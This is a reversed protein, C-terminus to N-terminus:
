SKQLSLNPENKQLLIKRQLLFHDHLYLIQDIEELYGKSAIIDTEWTNVLNVNKNTSSECINEVLDKWHPSIEGHKMIPITSFKDDPVVIYQSSVQLTKPNLVLAVSGVHCFSDGLYVGIRAKPEWKLYLWKSIQCGFSFSSLGTHAM